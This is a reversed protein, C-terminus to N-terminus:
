YVNSEQTWKLFCQSNGWFNLGPSGGLSQHGWKFTVRNIIVGECGGMLYCNVTAPQIRFMKELVIHHSVTNFAKSFNLFVVGVPNGQDVPHTVKDYHFNLKSFLVEQESNAKVLSQM